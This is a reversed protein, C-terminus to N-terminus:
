EGLDRAAAIRVAALSDELVHAHRPALALHDLQNALPQAVLFDGLAEIDRRMGDLTVHPVDHLLQRQMRPQLDRRERPAVPVALARRGRGARGKQRAARRVGDKM